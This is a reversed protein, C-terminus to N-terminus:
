NRVITQQVLETVAAHANDIAGLVDPEPALDRDLEEPGLRDVRALPEPSELAFRTEGGRELM